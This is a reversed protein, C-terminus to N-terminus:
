NKGISGRPKCWEKQVRPDAVSITNLFAVCKKDKWLFCNISGNPTMVVDAKHQGRQLTSRLRTDKLSNPWKRRKTQTTATCFTSNSLLSSLLEISSFYNNFYLHHCSNFFPTALGKVVKSVLPEERSAGDAGTYVDFNCIYGNHSDCLTWM